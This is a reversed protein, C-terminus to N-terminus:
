VISDYFRRQVLSTVLTLLISLTLYILAIAGYIPLPNLERSVINMGAGTLDIVGIASLLSTSKLLKELEGLLMPLAIVAAQPLIIRVFSHYTSYGLVYCADWQGPPIASISTKIIHAAYGASCLGLALTGASFASLNIPILTPLVFYLLLIQVYAPIGKTVLPYVELILGFWTKKYLLACIGVAAGIFLSVFSAILWSALTIKLGKYLLPVYNIFINM